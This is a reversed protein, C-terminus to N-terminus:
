RPLAKRLMVIADDVGAVTRACLGAITELWTPASGTSNLMAVAQNLNTGVRTVATRAAVLEGVAGRLEDLHPTAAARAASTTAIAAFGAPTLGAAAAAAAIM